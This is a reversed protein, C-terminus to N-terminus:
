TIRINMCTKEVRKGQTKTFFRFDDNNRIRTKLSVPEPLYTGVAPHIDTPHQSRLVVFNILFSFFYGFYHIFGGACGNIQTIPQQSTVFSDPM